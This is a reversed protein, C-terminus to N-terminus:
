EKGSTTECEEPVGSDVPEGQVYLAEPPSEFYRLLAPCLWGRLEKDLSYWTGGYEEELRTMKIQYGPFEEASFTLRIRDLDGALSDIIEPIGSVFPEEQLGVSPDDFIWTGYKRYPEIVNIQNSL